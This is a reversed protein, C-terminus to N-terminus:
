NREESFGAKAHEDSTVGSESIPHCVKRLSILPPVFEGFTLTAKQSQKCPSNVVFLPQVKILMSDKVPDTARLLHFISFCSLNFFQLQAGRFPDQGTPPIRFM